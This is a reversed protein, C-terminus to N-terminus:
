SPGFAGSTANTSGSDAAEDLGFRGILFGGGNALTKQNTPGPPNSGGVEVM